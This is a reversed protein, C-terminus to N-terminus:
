MIRLLMYAFRDAVKISDNANAYHLQICNGERYIVNARDEVFQIVVRDETADKCTVVPIDYAPVPKTLASKTNLNLLNYKSGTIRAIEVGAIVVRNNADPDVSIYVEGPAGSLLPDVATKDVIVDQTERPHYYFPIDYPQRGVEIRTVWLGGEAQAFEFGNFEDEERDQNQQYKQYATVAVLIVLLIGFAAIFKWPTTEKSL